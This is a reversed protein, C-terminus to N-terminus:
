DIDAVVPEAQRRLLKIVAPTLGLVRAARPLMSMDDDGYGFGLQVALRDAVCVAAAMPHHRAQADRHHHFQLVYAVDIPLRWYRAVTAGLEDHVAEIAPWIEEFPPADDKAVEALAAVIGADHLLGCTFAYGEDLATQRCVIRTIHATALSHRWLAQLPEEYGKVRFIPAISAQLVLENLAESGLRMLVQHVSAVGAQGAYAQAHALRLVDITLEPDQEVSQMLRNPVADARRSQEMLDLGVRPLRPPRYSPSRFADLLKTKPDSAAASERPHIVTRM